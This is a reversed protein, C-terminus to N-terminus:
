NHKMAMCVWLSNSNCVIQFSIGCVKIFHIGPMWRNIGEKDFWLDWAVSLPVAVEVQASCFM